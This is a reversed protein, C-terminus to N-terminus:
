LRWYGVSSFSAWCGVDWVVFWWACGVWVAVVGLGVLARYGGWSGRMKGKFRCGRDHFLTSWYCVVLVSWERIQFEWLSPMVISLNM